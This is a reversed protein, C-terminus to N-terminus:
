SSKKLWLVILRFWVQRSSIGDISRAYGKFNIEDGIIDFMECGFLVVSSYGHMLSFIKSPTYGSVALNYWEVATDGTTVTITQEYSTVKFFDAM